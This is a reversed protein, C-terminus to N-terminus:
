VSRSWVCEAKLRVMHFQFPSDVAGHVDAVIDKLRVMHFQFQHTETRGGEADEDKLRVM